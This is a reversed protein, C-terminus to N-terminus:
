ISLGRVLAAIWTMACSYFIMKRTHREQLIAEMHRHPFYSCDQYYSGKLYYKEEEIACVDSLM